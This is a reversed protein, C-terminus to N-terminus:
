RNYKSEFNIFDDLLGNDREKYFRLVLMVDESKNEIGYVIVYHEDITENKEYITKDGKNYITYQGM